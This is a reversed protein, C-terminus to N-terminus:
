LATILWVGYSDILRIPKTTGIVAAVDGHPSRVQSWDVSATDGHLNITAVTATELVRRLAPKMQAGTVYVVDACGYIDFNQLEPGLVSVIEQQGAPTAHACGDGAGRALASLFSSITHRIDVREKTASTGGCGALLTALAVTAFCCAGRRVTPSQRLPVKM